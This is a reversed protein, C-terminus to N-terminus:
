LKDAKYIISCRNLKAVIGPGFFTQEPVGKIKGNEIESAGTIIEDLIDNSEIIGDHGPFIKKFKAKFSDLHKMSKLYVSLNLSSDLHMLIQDYKVSDGSFLFRNKEDLLSISGPTHGPNSIVKLKRNGLDFIFGEDIIEVKKIEANIWQDKSFDEPYPAKFRSEFIKTRNEKKYFFDLSNKDEKSIFIEDFNFAGCVHDPHGHTIAASVTLDTLSKVAKSLNGIGWGADIILAKNSGALLYMSVHDNEIIQWTKEGVEKIVLRDSSKQAM